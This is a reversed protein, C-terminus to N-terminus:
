VDQTAARAARSHRQNRRKRARQCEPESCYAWGPRPTRGPMYPQHCVVCTLSHDEDTIGIHRAFDAMYPALETSGELVLEPRGPSSWECTLELWSQRFCESISLAVIQRARGVWLSGDGDVEARITDVLWEPLIPWALANEVMRKTAPKRQKALHDALAAIGDLGTIMRTIDDVWLAISPGVSLLPHDPCLAPYAHRRPLGHRCLIPASFERCHAVLAEAAEQGDYIAIDRLQEYGEHLTMGLRRTNPRDGWGDAYEVGVPLVPTASEGLAVYWSGGDAQVARADPYAYTTLTTIALRM